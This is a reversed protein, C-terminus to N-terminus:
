SLRNRLSDKNEKKSWKASLDLLNRIRNTLYRFTYIKYINRRLYGDVESDYSLDESHLYKGIPQQKVLNTGTTHTARSDFGVNTVLNTRPLIAYKGLARMRQVLITDWVDVLGEEARLAGYYWYSNEVSTNKNNSFSRVSQRLSVSIQVWNINSTAWGWILAYRSLIAGDSDQHPPALQTGCILWIRSDSELKEGMQEVYGFFDEAPICDDELVVGFTELSFFWDCSSVVNVACGLNATNLKAILKGPYKRQFTQIIKVCNLNDELALADDGDVADLSVYVRPIEAKQCLELLRELNASRRYAIILVAELKAMRGV